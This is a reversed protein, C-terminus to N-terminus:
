CIKNGKNWRDSELTSFDPGDMDCMTDYIYPSIDVEKMIQATEYPELNTNSVHGISSLYNDLSFGPFM